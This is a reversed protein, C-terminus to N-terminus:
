LDEPLLRRLDKGQRRLADVIQGESIPHRSYFDVVPSAPLDMLATYRRARRPAIDQRAAPRITCSM